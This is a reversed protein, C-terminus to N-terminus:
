PAVRTLQRLDPQLHIVHVRREILRLVPHDMTGHLFMVKPHLREIVEPLGRVFEQRLTADRWLGHNSVAVASGHEVGLFCFDYDRKCGWRLTPVVRIGRLAYFVGVSRSMRVSFIKRDPPEDKWISFDPAIIGWFPDFRRVWPGPARLQPRLKRDAVYGHLLTQAPILAKLRLDYAMSTMPLTTIDPAPIIPIQTDPDVPQGTPYWAPIGAILHDIEAESRCAPRLELSLM